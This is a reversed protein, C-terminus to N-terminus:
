GTLRSNTALGAGDRTLLDVRLCGMVHPTHTGIQIAAARILRAFGKRHTCHPSRAFPCTVGSSGM